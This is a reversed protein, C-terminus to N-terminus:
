DGCFRALTEGRVPTEAGSPAESGPDRMWAAVDALVVERQLDRTLMHYGQPYLLLRWDGPANERLAETLGCFARRPIIEDREGYLLLIPGLVAQGAALARDMLLTVGWLADIRTEKIVLPDLSLRKLMERNDSPQIGLGKGTLRLSPLTHAAVWLAAYQVPNMRARGWVAPAILILGDVPPTDAETLAVMAVAGGMSEGVVFLPLDPFRRRVLPLLTRLDAVLRETGAWIGPQQTSGFGRQDYALFAIGRQALFPGVEAFANHYDNFGHLGVAVGAAKGLPEWIRLPLQYGDEM